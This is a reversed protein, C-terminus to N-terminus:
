AHEGHAWTPKKARGLFMGIPSSALIFTHSFIHTCAARRYVPTGDLIYERRVGLTGPIPEPDVMVRFNVSLSHTSETAALEQFLLLM